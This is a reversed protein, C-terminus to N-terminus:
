QPDSRGRLVASALVIDDPDEELDDYVSAQDDADPPEYDATSLAYVHFEYVNGAAGPGQYGDDSGFGTQESGAPMAPMRARPLNAPLKLTAASINWIAWHTFGGSAAMFTTDHLVVVYSMTGAPGAGWNLEPSQNM